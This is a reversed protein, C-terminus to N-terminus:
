WPKPVSISLVLRVSTEALRVGVGEPGVEIQTKEMRTVGESQLRM